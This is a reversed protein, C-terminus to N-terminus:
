PVVLLRTVSSLHCQVDHCHLLRTKAAVRGDRVTAWTADTDGGLRESLALLEARYAAARQPSLRGPVLM